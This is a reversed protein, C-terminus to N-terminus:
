DKIAAKDYAKLGREVVFILPAILIASALLDTLFHGGIVPTAVIVFANLVFLIAFLWSMGRAVYTCIVALVLHFSPFQVTGQLKFLDFVRMSNDRLAYYQVVYPTNLDTKYYGFTGEAPLVAAILIYSLSTVIYLWVLLRIRGYQRVSVFLMVLIGIQPIVSNYTWIFVDAVFKHAWVWKYATPWDFGLAHDVAALQPDILPFNLTTLLCILIGMSISYALIKAANSGLAALREDPRLYTYIAGVGALLAVIGGAIALSLSTIVIHAASLWLANIFVIIATVAVVGPFKRINM